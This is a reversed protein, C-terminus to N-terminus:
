SHFIQVVYPRVCSRNVSQIETEIQMRMQFRIQVQAYFGMERPKMNITAWGM